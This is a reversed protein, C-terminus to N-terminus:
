YHEANVFINGREIFGLFKAMIIGESKPTTRAM